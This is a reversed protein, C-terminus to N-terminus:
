SGVAGPAASFVADSSHRTEGYGDGLRCFAARAGADVTRDTTDAALLCVLFGCLDRTRDCGRARCICCRPRKHLGMRHEAPRVLPNHAPRCRGMGGGGNRWDVAAASQRLPLDSSCVDSNWDCEKIEYATKQKFFFFLTTEM